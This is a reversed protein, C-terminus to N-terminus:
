SRIKPQIWRSRVFEVADSKSEFNDELQLDYVETLIEGFLPGPKLGLDILDKGTLLPDPKLQEVAMEQHRSKIFQYNELIGHSALCDIRHLELEDLITDRSLFRKLTSLRMSTVNKFNMHNEICDGVGEILSNSAKLRKLLEKAMQAGVRDHNNFRIRDSISITAPKGIDHLLVSWALIQSPAPGMLSLAKKTHTFVDGEPHFEPPQEIGIEDAIEPLILPLIGSENLLSLAVDPHPQKLIKDIEAFIRETSITTIKHANNKVARWTDEHISFNFRAAFRIARLIRLYDEEFRLRPDGIARIIKKEIDAAGEVYDHISNTLPDFFIGNITFDRRLADNRADTFVVGAPHRGDSIGIDSRFTAVEFPIGQVVVIMVGFQEGVGITQNFLKSITEPKANTAIDIDGGGDIKMLMDRVYGGAYLATYGNAVLHEIISHAALERKKSETTSM